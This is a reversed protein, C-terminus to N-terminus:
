INPPVLEPNLTKIFSVVEEAIVEHGLINPHFQCPYFYKAIEPQYFKGDGGTFDPTAGEREAFVDMFSAQGQRYVRSWDILNQYEDKPVHCSFGQFYFDPIDHLRCFMQFLMVNKAWNTKGTNEHHFNKYYTGIHQEPGGVWPMIERPEGTVPDFYLDRNESTLTVLFIYQDDPNSDYIKKFEALYLFLHNLSTGYGTYNIVSDAALAQGVLSPYRFINQVYMARDRHGPGDSLNGDWSELAATMKAKSVTDLQNVSDAGTLMDLESGWPWSDGFAVLIKAM